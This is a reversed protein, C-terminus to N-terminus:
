NKYKEVHARQWSGGLEEVEIWQRTEHIKSITYWARFSVIKVKTGVKFQKRFKKM